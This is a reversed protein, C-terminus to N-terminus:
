FLLLLFLFCFVSFTSTSSRLVVLFLIIITHSGSVKKDHIQIVSNECCCFKDGVVTNVRIKGHAARHFWYYLFDVGVFCLYWTGPSDWLLEVLQFNNYIFVYFVLEVSLM